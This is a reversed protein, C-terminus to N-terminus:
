NQRTQHTAQIKKTQYEKKKKKKKEDFFVGNKDGFV